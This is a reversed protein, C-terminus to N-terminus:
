KDASDAGNLLHPFRGVQRLLNLARKENGNTYERAIDRKTRKEDPNDRLKKALRSVDDNM